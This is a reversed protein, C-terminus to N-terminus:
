GSKSYSPAASQGFFRINQKYNHYTSRSCKVERLVEEETAGCKILAEAHLRKVPPLGHTPEM